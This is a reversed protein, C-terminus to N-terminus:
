PRMANELKLLFEKVSTAEATSLESSARLKEFYTKLEVLDQKKCKRLAEGNPYKLASSIVGPRSQGCIKQLLVPYAGADINGVVYCALALQQDNRPHDVANFLQELANTGHKALALQAKRAITFDYSALQEISRRIDDGPRKECGTMAILIFTGFIVALFSLRLIM